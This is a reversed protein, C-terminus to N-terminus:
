PDSQTADKDNSGNNNRGSEQGGLNQMQQRLTNVLEPNSQRMQQAIQQGFRLIDDLSSPVQSAQPPSANTESPSSGDRFIGQTNQMQPDSMLRQAMDQLMPNSLLTNLDINGGPSGFLNAGTTASQTSTEQLRSEAIALNQKLNLNSPDLSVAKKYSEIAKTFNGMNSYALGMRGYAKSYKPDIKIALKCDAVCEENKNLRSHAAARNCYYIANMPDLEIARSYCAIAEKFKEAAMCSNGQTKLNEAMAKDEATTMSINEFFSLLDTEPVQDGSVGFASEICQRAVAFFNLAPEFIQFHIGELSEITDSSYEGCSCEMKLYAVISHYLKRKM